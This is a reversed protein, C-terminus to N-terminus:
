ADWDIALKQPDEAAIRVPLSTGPLTRHLHAVPVRHGIRVEYPARGDDPTVRLVFGVIPDGNDATMGDMSFTGLVTAAGPLGRAILEAASLHEGPEPAGYGPARSWDVAVRHPADPDIRVSLLAGPLVAGVLLRPLTERHALRYPVAGDRHVELEFAVLPLGNVTVGTDTMSIVVATASTGSALLDDNGRAMEQAMSFVGKLGPGAQAEFVSMAQGFAANHFSWAAAFSGSMLLIMGSVFAPVAWGPMPWMTMGTVGAVLLAAGGASVGLGIRKM